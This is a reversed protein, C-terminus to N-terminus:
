RPVHIIAGEMFDSPALCPNARLLAGVSTNLRLAVRELNDGATLTM